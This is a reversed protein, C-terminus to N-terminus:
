KFLINKWVGIQQQRSKIQTQAISKMNQCGQSFQTDFTALGNAVQVDSLDKVQSNRIQNVKISVEAVMFGFTDRKVPAVLVEGNGEDVLRQLNAQSQLGLPQNLQPADISCLRIKDAKGDDIILIKDGDIVKIVLAPKILLATNTQQNQNTSNSSGPTFTITVTISITFILGLAIKKFVAKLSTM